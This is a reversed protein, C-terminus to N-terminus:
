PENAVALMTQIMSILNWVSHMAICLIVSQSMQRAAALILGGVFIIAIYIWDYQVHIVAWIASTIVAAGIWGLRTSSLGGFMLGRFLLEENIPALVVIALWFLFLPQATRYAELQELPVFDAGFLSLIGDALFVFGVVAAAWVGADKGDPWRLLLFQRTSLHRMRRTLFASFALVLPISVATAAVTAVAWVTGNSVADEIWQDMDLTPDRQQEAAFMVGIAIGQMFVYALGAIVSFVVALWARLPPDPAPVPEEVPDVSVDDISHPDDRDDMKLAKPIPTQFTFDEAVHYRSNSCFVLQLYFLM